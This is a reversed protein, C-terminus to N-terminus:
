DLFRMGISSFSHRLAWRRCLIEASAPCQLLLLLLIAWAVMVHGRAEVADTAMRGVKRKPVVGAVEVHEFENDERPVGRRLLLLLIARAVM